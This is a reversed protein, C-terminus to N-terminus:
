PSVTSSRPPASPADTKQDATAVHVPLPQYGPPYNDPVTLHGTPQAGPPAPNALAQAAIDLLLQLTEATIRPGAADSRMEPPLLSDLGDPIYYRTGPGRYDMEVDQSARRSSPFCNILWAPFPCCGLYHRRSRLFCCILVLIAFLTAAISGVIYVYAPISRSVTVFQPDHYTIPIDAELPDHLLEGDTITM